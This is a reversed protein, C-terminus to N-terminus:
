PGSSPSARVAPARRYPPPQESCLQASRATHEAFAHLTCATGVGQLPVSGPSQCGEGTSVSKDRLHTVQPAARCVIYSTQHHQVPTAWHGPARCHVGLYNGPCARGHFCAATATQHHSAAPSSWALMCTDPEHRGARQGQLPFLMRPAMGDPHFSESGSVRSWSMKLELSRAPSHPVRQAHQAKWRLM